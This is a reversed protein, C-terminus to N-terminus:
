RVKRSYCVTGNVDGFSLMGFQMPNNEFFGIKKKFEGGGLLHFSSKEYQPFSDMM